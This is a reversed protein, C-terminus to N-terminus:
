WTWAAFPLLLDRWTRRYGTDIRVRASLGARYLEPDVPRDFEVRV